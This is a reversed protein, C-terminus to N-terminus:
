IRIFNSMFIVARIAARGFFNLHLYGPFTNAYFVYGLLNAFSLSSVM